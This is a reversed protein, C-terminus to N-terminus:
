MRRVWSAASYDARLARAGACASCTGGARARKSRGAKGNNRHKAFGHRAAARRARRIWGFFARWGTSIGLNAHGARFRRSPNRGSRHRPREVRM